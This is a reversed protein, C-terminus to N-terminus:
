WTQQDDDNDSDYQEAAFGSLFSGKPQEAPKRVLRLRWTRVALRAIALAAFETCGAHVVTRRGATVLPYSRAPLLTRRGLCCSMNQSNLAYIGRESSTTLPLTSSGVKRKEPQCNQPRRAAHRRRDLGAPSTQLRM